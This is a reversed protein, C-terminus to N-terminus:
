PNWPKRGGWEPDFVELNHYEGTVQQEVLMREIEERTRVRVFQPFWAVKRQSCAHVEAQERTQFYLPQGGLGQLGPVAHRFGDGSTMEIGWEM